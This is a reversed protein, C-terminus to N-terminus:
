KLGELNSAGIRDAGAEILLLADQRNRIGGSAKIKTQKPLHGRLASVDEVSAGGGNKGTSTKVYDCGAQAVSQAVELMKETSSYIFTEIIAKIQVDNDQKIAEVIKKFQNYIAGTDGEYAASLDVVYDLETAGHKIADLGLAIKSETTDSGHPFSIVTCLHPGDPQKIEQLHSLHNPYVCVAACVQNTANKYLEAITHRSALHDLNTADVCSM